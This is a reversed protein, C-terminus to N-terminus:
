RYGSNRGRLFVFAVGHFRERTLDGDIKKVKFMDGHSEPYLLIGGENLQRILLAEDFFPGIGATLYIRDFPSNEPLGVSGDGELVNVQADFSLKGLNRKASAALEPILEVSYLSGGPSILEATVAASYGCGAGVELTKLGPSLELLAAMAAVMSPQSCTQQNGIPLPVDAYVDKASPPAFLARDAKRMASIVRPPFSEIGLYYRRSAVADALENNNKNEGHSVARVGM